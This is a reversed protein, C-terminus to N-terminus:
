FGMFEPLNIYNAEDMKIKRIIFGDDATSDLAEIAGMVQNIDKEYYGNKPEYELGIYYVNIEAM